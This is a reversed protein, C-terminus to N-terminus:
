SQQFGLIRLGELAEETTRVARELAPVPIERLGLRAALLLECMKKQAQDILPMYGVFAGLNEPNLFGLSLVTDVAVPDPIVAAEKVLDARLRAIPLSALVGASKEISAHMSDRATKIYRGVRIDIPRSFAAAEGLKKMAYDLDTGLVGLLFLSDDLSLFDREEAALKDIPLGAFSFSEGDSRVTVSSLARTLQAEKNFEEPNGILTTDEAKDLPLWCWWEPILLHGDESPTPQDINPQISIQVPRGDFTEGSLVVDAQSEAAISSNITMPVTAQARGNDLIHYFVGSGSPKGEFLSAGGGVNIGAIEGQVAKQSGNTFLAIPLATGDLDILNPFVYGILHRGQEDQVKYIGFQSILTPEDQEVQDEAEGAAAGEGLAM